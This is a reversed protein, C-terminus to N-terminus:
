EGNYVGVVYHWLGDTVIDQTGEIGAGTAGTMFNVHATTAWFRLEKVDHARAMFTRWDASPLGDPKVWLGITYNTPADFDDSDTTSIYNSSGDFYLATGVKGGVSHQATTPDTGHLEGTHNNGGSDVVVANGLNDDLSWYAVCDQYANGIAGDFQVDGTGATITLTYTGDLTDKFWVKGGATDTNLAVDDTLTVGTIFTIADNTTTIDGATSVAGAGDQLFAGDLTMDAAAAIDLLGANTITVIGGNGGALTNVT